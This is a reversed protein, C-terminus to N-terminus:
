PQPQTTITTTAVMMMVIVIIDQVFITENLTVINNQANSTKSREERRSDHQINKSVYTSLKELPM